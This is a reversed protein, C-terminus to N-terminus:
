PFTLTSINGQPTWTVSSPRGRFTLSGRGGNYRLHIALTDLDLDMPSVAPMFIIQHVAEEGELVVRGRTPGQVAGHRSHISELDFETGIAWGRLTPGKRRPPPSSSSPHDVPAGRAEWARFAEYLDDLDFASAEGRRAQDYERRRPPSSLVDYAKRLEIFAEARSTEPHRSSQRDPHLLKAKARFAQKIEAASATERVGLVTYHDRM